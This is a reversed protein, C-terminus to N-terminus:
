IVTRYFNDKFLVGFCFSLFMIFNDGSKDQVLHGKYTCHVCAGPLCQEGNEETLM